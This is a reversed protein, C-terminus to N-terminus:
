PRLRAVAACPPEGSGDSRLMQQPEVGVELGQACASWSGGLPSPQRMTASSPRARTRCSARPRPHIWRSALPLAPRASRAPRPSSRRRASRDHDFAHAPQERDRARCRCATCSPASGPAAATASRSRPAITRPRCHRRGARAPARNRRTRRARSIAAPRLPVPVIQLEPKRRPGRGRASTVVVGRGIGSSSRIRSARSSPSSAGPPRAVIDVQVLLEISTM